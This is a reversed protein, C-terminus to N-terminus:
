CRAALPSVSGLYTLLLLLLLLVVVVVLVLSPLVLRYLCALVLVHDITIMDDPAGNEM